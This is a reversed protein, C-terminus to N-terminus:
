SVILACLLSALLAFAAVSVDVAIAERRPLTAPAIFLLGDVSWQALLLGGLAGIGGVVLGEAALQGLIRGRSAGISIRVALERTRASVRALLLNTLNACAVLLVFAVAGTVALLAPKVDTVVEQDLTSLSLRAAGTSYSSPRSAVLNRMLVGVAA